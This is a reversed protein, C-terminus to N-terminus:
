VSNMIVWYKCNTLFQWDSRDDSDINSMALIVNEKIEDFSLANVLYQYEDIDQTTLIELFCSLTASLIYFGKNNEELELIFTFHHSLPLTRSNLSHCKPNSNPHSRGKLVWDLTVFNVTRCIVVIIATSSIKMLSKDWVPSSFLYILM